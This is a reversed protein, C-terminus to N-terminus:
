IRGVMGRVIQNLKCAENRNRGRKIDRMVSKKELKSLRSFNNWIVCFYIYAM